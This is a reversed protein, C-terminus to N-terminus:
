TLALNRLNQLRDLNWRQTRLLNAQVALFIASVIMRRKQPRCNSIKSWLYNPGSVFLHTRNEHNLIPTHRKCMSLFIVHHIKTVEDRSDIPSIGLARAQHVEFMEETFTCEQRLIRLAASRPSEHREIAGQPFMFANEHEPAKYPCVLLVEGKPNRVLVSVTPRIGEAFQTRPLESDLLFPAKYPSQHINM